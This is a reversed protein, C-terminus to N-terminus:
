KQTAADLVFQVFETIAHVSRDFRPHAVRQNDCQKVFEERAAHVRSIGKEVLPQAKERYSRTERIESLRDSSWHVVGAIRKHGAILAAVHLVIRVANVAIFALLLFFPTHTKPAEDDQGINALLGHTATAKMESVKDQTQHVVTTAKEVAPTVIQVVRDVYPAAQRKASDVIPTVKERTADTAHTIVENTRDVVAHACTKASAVTHMASDSVDTAMQKTHKVVADVRQLATEVYPAVVEKATEVYPAVHQEYTQESLSKHPQHPSHEQAPQAGSSSPAAAKRGM